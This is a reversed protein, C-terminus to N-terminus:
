SKVIVLTQMLGQVVLRWRRNVKSSSIRPFLGSVPPHQPDLSDASTTGLREQHSIKQPSAPTDASLFFFPAVFFALSPRHFSAGSSAIRRCRPNGCRSPFCLGSEVTGVLGLLLRM